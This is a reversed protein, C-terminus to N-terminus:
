AAIMRRRTGPAPPTEAQGAFCQAIAMWKAAVDGTTKIQTDAINRVQTVVQCFETATGEVMNDPDPENFELLEGSPLTLKVYPVNEPVPLKNVMHTWGFTNVGLVAINKIRDANKREVGLTDYVEQGHAWTEMLRATISSRASMSPGAWVVRQKPDADLFRDAVGPYFDHWRKVLDRGSIGELEANEFGRLGGTAVFAGVREFFANFAAEDNLSMDAAQNWIHLHGIVDRITWGKFQTPELLREEPLDKILAYLADSEARFDNPQDFM